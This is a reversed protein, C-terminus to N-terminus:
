SVKQEKLRKGEEEHKREIHTTYTEIRSQSYGDKKKNISVQLPQNCLFCASSFTATDSSSKVLVLEPNLQQEDISPNAIKIMKIIKEKLISMCTDTDPLPKMKKNSSPQNEDSTRKVSKKDCSTRKVLKANQSDQSTATTMLKEPFSGINNLKQFLNKIENVSGITMEFNEPEEETLTEIWNYHATGKKLKNIRAGIKSL